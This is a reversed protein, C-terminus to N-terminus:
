YNCLYKRLKYFNEAAYITNEILTVVTMPGVGGPVPTIWSAKGIASAFDVDGVIEGNPLKNIGVDLVIAGFKIWDGRIIKPKGVASVVIDAQKIINPLDYTLSNCITVTCRSNIFEMAMPKGVINSAGIIVAHKGQIDIKTFKILSMVAKATCSRLLPNGISLLGVNYPHFGDVDKHPLIEQMISNCNLEVPLPLQLLIGDISYDDNLSKILEVLTSKSVTKDFRFDQSKIGVEACLNRKKEIYIESSVNNGVLIMALGPIRLGELKRKAIIIKLDNKISNAIEHGNLLETNM